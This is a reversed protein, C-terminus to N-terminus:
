VPYLASTQPRHMMDEHEQALIEENHRLYRNERLWKLAQTTSDTLDKYRGNPFVAAEDIVMQAWERDPAYVLEKAFLPQEAHARATKDGDVNREEVIWDDNSYLRQMEQGVSKGSAKNEILLRNVKFRRCSHAVWECLGWEPSARKWFAADSEGPIRPVDQGHILLRKRWARLLIVRRRRTRPCNFLGWVTFGSPDNQEKDTYASDLSAITLELPPFKGDPPDWLQWYDRKIIGGGRPEPTQQYQCAWMYPLSRFENLSHDPFREPWALEKDKTRPDRWGICTAHARMPDYEMPILLHQYPLGKSIIEGAVDDENVRQMIVVVVSKDLDNLRNSMAERFWRVTSTRVAESEAERVNHPDDLLVRDGREGTGVGGVSTALKWGMKDNSVLREGAKRLKVRDGWLEQYKQSQLLTLFRRNDRETLDSSYSFSVYRLHPQNRPGWEWAPWFVNVILSKMFGPPVNALLRNNPIEGYSLAELHLCLAELPWGIVLERNPEIIPWYYEIFRILGGRAEQRSRELRLKKERLAAALARKHGLEGIIESYVTEDLM